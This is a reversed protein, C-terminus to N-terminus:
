SKTSKISLTPWLYPAHLQANLPGLKWRTTTKNNQSCRMIEPEWGNARLIVRAIQRGRKSIRPDYLGKRKKPRLMARVAPELAILREEAADMLKPEVYVYAPPGKIRLPVIELLQDLLFKLNPDPQEESM